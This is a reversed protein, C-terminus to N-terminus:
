IYKYMDEDIRGAVGGTSEREKGDHSRVLCFRGNGLQFGDMGSGAEGGFGLGILGRGIGWLVLALGKERM